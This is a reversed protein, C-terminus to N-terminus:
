VETVTWEEQGIYRWVKLTKRGEGKYNEITPLLTDIESYYRSLDSSQRDPTQSFKGLPFNVVYLPAHWALRRWLDWDGALRMARNAGGARHWLDVTWFTGEQMIFAAARGDHKGNALDIRRYNNWPHPSCNGGDPGSLFSQRRSM